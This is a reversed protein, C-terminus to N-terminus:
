RAFRIRTTTDWALPQTDPLAGGQGDTAYGAEKLRNLYVTVEGSIEAKPTQVWLYGGRGDHDIEVRVTVPGFLTPISLAEISAGGKLWTLPIGKLLELRDRKELVIMYRLLRIVQLNGMTHPVDGTTRTGEGKLMQEEVWVHTPSAHNAFSYLLREADDPSGLYIYAIARHAEFIPWVGNTLWGLSVVHDEKEHRELMRMTGKVLSSEPDLFEGAYLSHIPGWQGRQPLDNEPDFDMKIPLFTNGEDDTFQDRASAAQFASLFDAYEAEWAAAEAKDRQRATKTAEAVGILTWYTSGYTSGVGAIGGDTLGPPLLKYYPAEPDVSARKRLDAIHNMGAVVHDWNEDLFQWDQTFRAYRCIIYVLHATERHLLAPRIVGARGTEDQHEILAAVTERAAQFDGAFLAAEVAWAGDVYWLGRYVSPGPQFQSLGDVVDRIQYLTRISSDLMDQVQPDPVSIRGTPIPAHQWYAVTQGQEHTLDPFTSDGSAGGNSILVDVKDVSESFHLEFGTETETVREFRPTTQVFPRGEFRLTGTGQDVQLPRVTNVTVALAGKGTRVTRIADQRLLSSTHQITGCNVVIEAVGDAKGSIVDAPDVVQDHGFVWIGNLFANPDLADVAGGVDIRIWGDGDEDIADFFFVQPQGQSGTEMLNVTRIAAGEVTLDMARSIKGSRYIENFGLAIKRREGPTVKVNYKIGRNTGWAVSRFVPNVGDQAPAWAVTGNIGNTRVVKGDAIWGDPSGFKKPVLSFAIQDLSFSEADHRTLVIPARADLLRQSITIEEESVVGVSITTKPRAYPGPGFDYARRGRNDVLSKEWDDVFGTSTLWHPPSYGHDIVYQARASPITMTMLVLPLLYKM